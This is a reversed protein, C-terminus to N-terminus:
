HRYSPILSVCKCHCLNYSKGNDDSIFAMANEKSVYEPHQDIFEVNAHTLLRVCVFDRPSVRLPRGYHLSLEKINMCLSRSVM